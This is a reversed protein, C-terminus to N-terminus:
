KKTSRTARKSPTPSEGDAQGRKGKVGRTKKPAAEGNEIAKKKNPKAYKNELDALMDAFAKERKQHGAQIQKVLEDDDATILFFFFGHFNHSFIFNLTISKPDFFTVIFIYPNLIYVSLM